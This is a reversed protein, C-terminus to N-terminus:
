LLELSNFLWEIYGSHYRVDYWAERVMVMGMTSSLTLEVLCEIMLSLSLSVAKILSMVKDM